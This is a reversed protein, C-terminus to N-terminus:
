GPARGCASIARGGGADPLSAGAADVGAEVPITADAAVSPGAEVPITADAAVSPGAEVPITADAAGAVGPVVSQGACDAVKCIPSKGADVLTVSKGSATEISRVYAANVIQGSPLAILTVLACSPYTVLAYWPEPKQQAPWGVPDVEAGSRGCLPGTPTPGPPDSVLTSTDQPLFMVEYPAATLFTGDGKVPRITQTASRPSLPVVDDPNEQNFTHEVL